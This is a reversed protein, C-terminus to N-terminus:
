PLAEEFLECGFNGFAQQVISGVDFKRQQAFHMLDCILDSISCELDDREMTSPHSGSFTLMTFVALAEKAWVARAVNTPETRM